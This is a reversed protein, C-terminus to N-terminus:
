GPLKGGWDEVNVDKVSETFMWVHGGIDGVSYQKEGYPFVEPLSLILAGHKAAHEYHADVDAVRVMLSNTKDACQEHAGSYGTVVITGNGFNLQARHNGVRWRETFGFVTCLWDIAKEVDDYVLVPIISIPPM